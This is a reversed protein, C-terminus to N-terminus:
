VRYIVPLLGAIMGTLMDWGSSNGIEAVRRVHGSADFGDANTILGDALDHLSAHSQGESLDTLLAHSIQTTMSNVNAVMAPIDGGEWWCENPYAAELYRSMFLLGGVFDDGSPTLGHGLGILGKLFLLAAELNGRRYIPLSGQIREVAAHILPSTRRPLDCTIEGYNNKTFSRLALGLNEGEHLDIAAALLDQCRSRLRPIPAASLKGSWQRSWVEGDVLDLSMDNSFYLETGKVWTHLGAHLASLDLDTLFSRPHPQQDLPCVALINGEDTAVYAAASGASIVEGSFGKTTLYRNAKVGILKVTPRPPSGHKSKLDFLTRTLQM